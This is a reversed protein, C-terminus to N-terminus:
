YGSRTNVMVKNHNMQFVSNNGTGAAGDTVKDSSVNGEAAIVFTQNGSAQDGITSFTADMTTQNTTGGVTKGALFVSTTGPNAVNLAATAGSTVFTYAATAQCDGTSLGSNVATTYADADMSTAATTAVGALTVSSSAAEIGIAYYRSNFERGPDYGMYGLCTSYVGFDGYFAQQATYAAALQVKAESTKAKAQYKKFNPVAVASLVGIIAVVIMLEVLTFGDQEKMKNIFKKM